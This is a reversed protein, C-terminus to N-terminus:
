MHWGNACPMVDNGLTCKDKATKASLILFDDFLCPLGGMSDLLDLVATTKALSSATVRRQRTGASIGGEQNGPWKSASGRIPHALMFSAVYTIPTHDPCQHHGVLGSRQTQNPMLIRERERERERECVFEREREREKVCVCVCVCVCVFM